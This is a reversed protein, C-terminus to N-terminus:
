GTSAARAIHQLLVEITVPGVGGPVPTMYAAVAACAPDVDGRLAGHSGSTGADFIVVGPRVMTPTVLGPTGAGAVVIDADRLMTLDPTAETVVTVRAGQERFWRAAPAGVLRGAGIVVVRQDSVPIRYQEVMAQIAGVVPSLFVPAAGLADVDHSPAIATLVASRDIHEPLPLQVVIADTSEHAATVDAVLEATTASDPLVHVRLEIGLAAARQEKMALYRQTVANPACSLILARPPRQQVQLLQETQAAVAQAVAHGDILM